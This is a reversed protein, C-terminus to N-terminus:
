LLEASADLSIGRIDRDPGHIFRSYPSDHDLPVYSHGSPIIDPYPEPIITLECVRTDDGVQDEGTAVQFIHNSTSRRAV